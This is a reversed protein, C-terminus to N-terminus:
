DFFPWLIEVSTARRATGRCYCLRKYLAIASRVKTILRSSTIIFYSDVDGKMNDNHLKAQQQIQIERLSLCFCFSLVVVYIHHRLTENVTLEMTSNKAVIVYCVFERYSNSNPVTSPTFIGKTEYRIDVYVIFM